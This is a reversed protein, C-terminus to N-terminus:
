VFRNFVLMRVLTGQECPVLPVCPVRFRSRMTDGRTGRLGTDDEASGSEVFDKM